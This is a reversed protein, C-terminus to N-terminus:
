KNKSKQAELEILAKELEEAFEIDTRVLMKVADQMIELLQIACERTAKEPKHTKLYRFIKDIDEENIVYGDMVIETYCGAQLRGYFM